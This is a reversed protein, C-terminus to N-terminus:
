GGGRCVLQTDGGALGLQLLQDLLLALLAVGLPQGLLHHLISLPLALGWGWTFCLGPLKNYVCM